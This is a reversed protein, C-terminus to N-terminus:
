RLITVTGSINKNGPIELIYYYTGIPLPQGNRNGDWSKLLNRSEYVIRGGRDFIKVSTGNIRAFSSLDWKDNIGDGNPSFTNVLVDDKITKVYIPKTTSNCGYINSVSL